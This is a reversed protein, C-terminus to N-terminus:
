ERTCLTRRGAKCRTPNGVGSSNNMGVEQESSGLIRIKDVHSPHMTFLRHTFGQNAQGTIYVAMFCSLMVLGIAFTGEKRKRVGYKQAM